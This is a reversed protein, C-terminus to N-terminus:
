YPNDILPCYCWMQKIEGALGECPGARSVLTQKSENGRVCACPTFDTREDIVVFIMHYM